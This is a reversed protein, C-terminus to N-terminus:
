PLSPYAFDGEYKDAELRRNFDEEYKKDAKRNRQRMKESWPDNDFAEKLRRVFVEEAEQHNTIPDELSRPDAAELIAYVFEFDITDTAYTGWGQRCLDGALDKHWNKRRKSEKQYETQTLGRSYIETKPPSPLKRFTDKM